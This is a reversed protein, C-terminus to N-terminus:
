DNHQHDKGGSQRQSKCRKVIEEDFFQRFTRFFHLFNGSGDADAGVREDGIFIRNQQHDDQNNGHDKRHDGHPLGGNRENHACHHRATGTKHAHFNGGIGVNADGVLGPLGVVNSLRQFNGEPAARDHTKAHAAERQQPKEQDIQNKAQPQPLEIHGLGAIGVVQPQAKDGKGHRERAIGQAAGDHGHEVAHAAADVGLGGVHARIQHALGLGVDGLVIGAVRGGDGVVHAVVHAVHRTEARIKQLAVHAGDGRADDQRIVHEELGAGQARAHGFGHELLANQERQDKDRQSKQGAANSNAPKQGLAM